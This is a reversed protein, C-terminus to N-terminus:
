GAAEDKSEPRAVADGEPTIVGCGIAEGANGAPQSNPHDADAYVVLTRGLISNKGHLALGPVNISVVAHNSTDAVVNGLDGLHHEGNAPDGHQDGTPAFHGGPKSCDGNEHIYL